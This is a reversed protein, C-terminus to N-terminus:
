KRHECTKELRRARLYEDEEDRQIRMTHGRMTNESHGSKSDQQIRIELYFFFGVIQM